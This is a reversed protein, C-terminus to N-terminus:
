FLYRLAIVLILIVILVFFMFAVCLRVARYVAKRTPAYFNPHTIKQHAGILILTCILVVLIKSIDMVVKTCESFGLNSEVMAILFVCFLGPSTLVCGVKFLLPDEKAEVFSWKLVYLLYLMNLVLIWLPIAQLLQKM